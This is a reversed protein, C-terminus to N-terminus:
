KVDRVTVFDFNKCNDYNYASVQSSAKIVFEEMNIADSNKLCAKIIM